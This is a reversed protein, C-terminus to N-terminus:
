YGRYKGSDNTYRSHQKGYKADRLASRQTDRLAKRKADEWALWDDLEDHYVTRSPVRLTVYLAVGTWFFVIIATVVLGLEM